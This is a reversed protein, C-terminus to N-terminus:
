PVGMWLISVVRNSSLASAKREIGALAAIDFGPARCRGSCGSGSFAHPRLGVPDSLYAGPLIVTIEAVGPRVAGPLAFWGWVTFGGGKQKVQM